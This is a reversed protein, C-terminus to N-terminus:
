GAAVCWYMGEQGCTCSLSQIKHCLSCIFVFKICGWPARKWPDKMNKASFNDFTGAPCKVRSLWHKTNRAAINWKILSKYKKLNRKKPNGGKPSNFELYHIESCQEFDSGNLVFMPVFVSRGFAWHKHLIQGGMRLCESCVNLCISLTRDSLTQAINPGWTCFVCQSLCQPKHWTQGAPWSPACPLNKPLLYM